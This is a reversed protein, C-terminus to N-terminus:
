AGVVTGPMSCDCVQSIDISGFQEIVLAMMITFLQLARLGVKMGPVLELKTSTNVGKASLM